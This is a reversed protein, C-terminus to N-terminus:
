EVVFLVWRVRAVDIGVGCVCCQGDVEVVVRHELWDLSGDVGKRGFGLLDAPVDPRAM